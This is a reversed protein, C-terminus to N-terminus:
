SDRPSPSTYLLCVNDQWVQKHARKRVLRGTLPDIAMNKGLANDGNMSAALRQQRVLAQSDLASKQYMADSKEAYADADAFEFMEAAQAEGQNRGPQSQTILTPHSRLHEVHMAYENLERSMRFSFLLASMPSRITGEVSPAHRDSLLCKIRPDEKDNVSPFRTLPYFHYTQTFDRHVRMEVRYSGFPPVYPIEAMGNNEKGGGDVKVKIKMYPCFGFMFLHDQVASAFPLWHRQILRDFNASAKQGRSRIEMGSGLLTNDILTRATRVVPEQHFLEYCAKMQDRDLFTKSLPEKAM